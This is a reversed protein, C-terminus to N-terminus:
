TMATTVMALWACILIWRTDTALRKNKQPAAMIPTFSLEVCLFAILIPKWSRITARLM